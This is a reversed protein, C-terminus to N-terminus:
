LKAGRRRSGRSKLPFGAGRQWGRHKALPPRRPKIPREIRPIPNRYRTAKDPLKPSTESSSRSFPNNIFM